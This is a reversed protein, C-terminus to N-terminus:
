ENYDSPRFTSEFLKRGKQSKSYYVYRFLYDAEKYMKLKASNRLERLLMERMDNRAVLATDDLQGSLTYFYGITHTAADFTM